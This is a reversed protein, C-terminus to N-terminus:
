ATPLLGADELVKLIKNVKGDLAIVNTETAAGQTILANIATVAADAEAESYTSGASAVPTITAAPTLVAVDAVHAESSTRAMQADIAEAVEAEHPVHVDQVNSYDPESM